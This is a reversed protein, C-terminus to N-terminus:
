RYESWVRTLLQQQAQLRRSRQSASRLSLLCWEAIHRLFLLPIALQVMSGRYRRLLRFRAHHFRLARTASWQSAIGLNDHIVSNVELVACSWGAARLRLCLDLDCDAFPFSAADMGSVARWADARILMPSTYVIDCHGYRGAEPNTDQWRVRLEDVGLKTRLREGLVFGLIGPTRLGFGIRRGDRRRLTFGTAAISPESRLLAVARVIPGPGEILNDTEFFLYYDPSTYTDAYACARNLGAAFSSDESEAAIILSTSSPSFRGCFAEIAGISGDTSGADFFVISFTLGSEQALMLAALSNLADWLLDLRNFSSVIFTIRNM